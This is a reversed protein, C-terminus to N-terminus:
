PHTWYSPKGLIRRGMDLVFRSRREGMTSWLALRIYARLKALIWLFGPWRMGYKRQISRLERLSALVNKPNSSVGGQRMGVVVLNPIFRPAALRLERVLLDTDGAIRFGEDFGGRDKFVSARHMLGPHPPLGLVEPIVGAIYRYPAGVKYIPAGDLGMLMIQGYAIQTESPLDQLVESMSALVDDSWLYDDAGLFCVWDGAIQHLGKNWASYIGSDPESIWYSIKTANAALLDVTGDTSGGDIVILEFNKYTQSAVSDICQQLTTVGNYVAVIISIYPRPNSM